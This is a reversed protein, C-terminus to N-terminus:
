GGFDIIPTSGTSTSTADDLILARADNDFSCPEAEFQETEQPGTGPAFTSIGVTFICADDDYSVVGTARSNGATLAFRRASANFALTTSALGFVTETTFTFTRGGLLSDANAGDIGTTNDDDDDDGGCGFLALMSGLVLVAVLSLVMRNTRQMSKREELKSMNHRKM